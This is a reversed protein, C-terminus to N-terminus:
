EIKVHIRDNETPILFSFDCKECYFKHYFIKKENLFPEHLIEHECDNKKLLHISLLNLDEKEKSCDICVLKQIGNEEDEVLFIPTTSKGCSECQFPESNEKIFHFELETFKKLLM